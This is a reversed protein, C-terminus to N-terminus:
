AVGLGREDGRGHAQSILPDVGLLLGQAIIVTGFVWVRAVSSAALAETSFHGLMMTDVIGLMMAALQTCAVPIALRSIIHFEERVSM